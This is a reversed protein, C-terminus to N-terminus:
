IKNLRSEFHGNEITRKETIMDLNKNFKEINALCNDIEVTLNESEELIKERGDIKKELDAFIELFLNRDQQVKEVNQSMEQFYKSFWKKLEQAFKFFTKDQFNISSIKSLKFAKIEEVSFCDQILSLCNMFFTMKGLMEKQKRDSYSLTSDLDNIKENDNNLFDVSDENLLIEFYFRNLETLCYHSNKFFEWLEHEIKNLCHDKPLDKTSKSLLVLMKEYIDLKQTFIEMKNEKFKGFEHIIKSNEQEFLIQEDLYRIKEIFQGLKEVISEKNEDGKALFSLVKHEFVLCQEFADKLLDLQKNIENETKKVVQIFNVIEGENLCFENITEKNDSVCFYDFYKVILLKLCIIMNAKFDIFQNFQSQYKEILFDKVTNPGKYPKLKELIKENSPRLQLEGINIRKSGVRSNKTNDFKLVLISKWNSQNDNLPDLSNQICDLFDLRDSLNQIKENLKDIKLYEDAIEKNVRELSESSTVEQLLKSLEPDLLLEKEKSPPNESESFM